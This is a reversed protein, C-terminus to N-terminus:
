ASMVGERIFSCSLILKQDIDPENVSHFFHLVYKAVMDAFQCVKRETEEKGM